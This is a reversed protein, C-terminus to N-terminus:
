WFKLLDYSKLIQKIPLYLIENQLGWFFKKSSYWARGDFMLQDRFDCKLQNKLQWQWKELGIFKCKYFPRWLTWCLIQISRIPWGYNDAWTIANLYTSCYLEEHKQTFSPFCNICLNLWFFAQLNSNLLSCFLVLSQRKYHCISYALESLFFLKYTVSHCNKDM